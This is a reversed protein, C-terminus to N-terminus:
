ENRKVLKKVSGVKSKKTDLVRNKPTEIKSIKDDNLEVKEEVALPTEQVDTILKIEPVDTGMARKEIDAIIEEKITNRIVNLDIDQLIYDAIKQLDVGMMDLMEIQRLPFKQWQINCLISPSTSKKLVRRILIMDEDENYKSNVASRPLESMKENKIEYINERILKKDEDTIYNNYDDNDEKSVQAVEDLVSGPISVSVPKKIDSKKIAELDKPEGKIYESIMNYDMRRGDTTMIALNNDEFFTDRVKFSDGTKPNYWFGDLVPTNGDFM